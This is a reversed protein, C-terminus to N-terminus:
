IVFVRTIIESYTVAKIHWYVIDSCDPLYVNPKTM